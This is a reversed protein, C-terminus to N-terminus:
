YFLLLTFMINNQHHALEWKKISHCSDFPVIQLGKVYWQGRLNDMAIDALNDKLFQSTDLAVKRSIGFDTEVIGWFLETQNEYKTGNPTSEVRSMGASTITRSRIAVPYPDLKTWCDYTVEPKKRDSGIPGHTCKPWDRTMLHHGMRPWPPFEISRSKRHKILSYGPTTCIHERVVRLKGSSQITNQNTDLIDNNRWEFHLRNCIIQWGRSDNPLDHALLQIASLATSHLGDDADLRTEILLPRHLDFMHSFLQQMDGTHIISLAAEMGNTLNAPTLLKANSSVLYFHSYPKLLYRMRDFLKRDLNPDVMVFWLFNHAHQHIMTPFCFTEFLRLRAAGLTLLDSQDQMFRTTVIHLMGTSNNENTTNMKSAYHEQQSLSRLIDSSVILQPLKVAIYFNGAASFFTLAGLTILM